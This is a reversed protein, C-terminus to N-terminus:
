ILRRLQPQDHTELDHANDVLSEAVRPMEDRDVTPHQHDIGRAHNLRVQRHDLLVPPPQRPGSIRVRVSVIHRPTGLESPPARREERRPGRMELHRVLRKIGTIFDVQTPERQPRQRCRAVRRIMEGVQEEVAIPRDRHERAPRQHDAGDPTGIEEAGFVGPFEGTRHPLRQLSFDQDEGVRQGHVRRMTGTRETRCRSRVFPGGRDTALLCGVRQQLEGILVREDTLQNSPQSGERGVERPEGFAVALSETRRGTRWQASEGDFFRLSEDPHPCFDDVHPGNGRERRVMNWTRQGVRQPRHERAPETPEDRGVPLDDEDGVVGRVAIFEDALAGVDSVVVDGALEGAADVGPDFGPQGGFRELENSDFLQGLGHEIDAQRTFVVPTM